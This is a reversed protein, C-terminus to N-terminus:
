VLNEGVSLQAVHYMPDLTRNVLWTVSPRPGRYLRISPVHCFGSGKLACDM